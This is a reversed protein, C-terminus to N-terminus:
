RECIFGGLLSGIVSGITMTGGVLGQGRGKDAEDMVEDSYYVSASGYIAYTVTQLLQILYITMVNAALIYLVGRICYFVACFLLLHEAKFKKRLYGYGFMVGLETIASIFTAIGVEKSTGGVNEIIMLIYVNFVNHLALILAFGILMVIFYPYKRLFNDTSTGTERDKHAEQGAASTDAGYYPLSRVILFTVIMVIMGTVPVSVEKFIGTLYGLILAIIAYSLSGFARASGFEITIGKRAYYFCATNMVPVMTNLCIIYVAFLLAYGVRGGPLLLLALIAANMLAAVTLHQKWTCLKEDLMHGVAAQLLASLLGACATATGIISLPIGKQQMFYTGYTSSIAFGSWVLAQLARYLTKEKGM